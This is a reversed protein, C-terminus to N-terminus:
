PTRNKRLRARRRHGHCSGTALKPIRSASAAVSFVQAVATRELDRRRGRYALACGSATGRESGLPGRERSLTVYAERESVVLQATFSDVPIDYLSSM